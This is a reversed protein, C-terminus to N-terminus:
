YSHDTGKEKGGEGSGPTRQEEQLQARELESHQLDGECHEGDYEVGVVVKDQRVHTASACPCM